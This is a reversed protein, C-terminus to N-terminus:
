RQWHMTLDAEGTLPDIGRSQMLFNARRYFQVARENKEYVHLTLSPHQEKVTDLLASGVGQHQSAPLVFLGEINGAECGLFGDITGSQNRHVVVTFGTLMQRVQPLAHLWVSQDVFPHGDFNGKLWVELVQNLDSGTLKEITEIMM